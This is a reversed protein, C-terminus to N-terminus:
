YPATNCCTLFLIALYFYTYPFIHSPVIFGSVCHELMKIQEEGFKVHFKKQETVFQQRTYIIAIESLLLIVM